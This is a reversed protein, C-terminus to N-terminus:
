FKFLKGIENEECEAFKKNCQDCEYKSLLYKNGLAESVVHADTKFNIKTKTEKCFRCYYQTNCSLYAKRGKDNYKYCVIKKFM